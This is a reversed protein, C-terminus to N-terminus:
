QDQICRVSFGDVKNNASISVTGDYTFLIIHWSTAADNETASWWFGWDLATDFGYPGREGDPLATFGSENTADANPLIWHSTGAEKLKGGATDGGGLYTILDAWESEAPVHWGAPCINRNDAVAYWNYLLGYIASYNELYSNTCRAGNSLNIWANDDAVDPIPDGNQYKTTKLNEAMWLRNNITVTMYTNGEIDTIAGTMTKIIIQDGYGTGAVNTAYARVYYTTNASLGDIISTFAGAGTGDSTKKDATTPHPSTSWCVGRETISAGANTRVVGGSYAGGTTVQSPPVSTVAPLTPPEPEGLVCRVSFGTTNVDTLSSIFTSRCDIFRCWNETASWWYGGNYGLDFFYGGNGRMGGPIATFGSANTAGANPNWHATGTEKLKGGAIAEGGLYDSLVRWEDDTPIHWGVPCLNGMNVAYWNYLAGYVVKKSVNNDYWCYALTTLNFWSDNGTVLPISSGDNLRTTKLNEAMWTQSGIGITKYENGDIDSVAGYTLDPNFNIGEASNGTTFDVQNGYATGAKNIAYARVYYKTNATLGTLNSSFSGSGTGESTKASATTPKETESWCVGRMTVESGGDDTINGGSTASSQTVATVESTTLVALVPEKENKCSHIIAALGASIFLCVIIKKFNKM